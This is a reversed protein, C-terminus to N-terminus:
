IREKISAIERECKAVDDESRYIEVNPMDHERWMEELRQVSVDKGELVRARKLYLRANTYDGLHAYKMVLLYHLDIVEDEEINLNDNSPSDQALATKGGHSIEERINRLIESQVRIFDIRSGHSRYHGSDRWQECLMYLRSMEAYRDGGSTLDVSIPSEQYQADSSECGCLGLFLVLLLALVLCERFM